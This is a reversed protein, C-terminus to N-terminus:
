RYVLVPIQTHTLVKQTESGLLFAEIGSVGHSAMFILDCGNKEAEEIIAEYPKLGRVSLVEFPVGSQAAAARIEGLIRATRQGMIHEFTVETETDLTM